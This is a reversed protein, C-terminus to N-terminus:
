ARAEYFLEPNEMMLKKLMNRARLLRQKSNGVSIGLMDSIEQHTYGDIAYLNLVVRYNTPLQQIAQLVEQLAMQELIDDADSLDSYLSIDSFHYKPNQYKRLHELATNIMVKRIWGGLEGKGSYSYLKSFVKIFGEQLIDQAMEADPAYRLCIAFMKPAFTNYLLTQAATDGSMCRNITRKDM